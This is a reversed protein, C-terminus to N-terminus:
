YHGVNGLRVKGIGLTNSSQIAPNVLGFQLGNQQIPNHNVIWNWFTSKSQWDLLELAIWICNILIKFIKLEFIAYCNKLGLWTKNITNMFKPFDRPFKCIENCLQFSTNLFKYVQFFSKQQITIPNPNSQWDMTFIPNPNPNDIM